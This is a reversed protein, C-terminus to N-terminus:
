DSKKHEKKARLAARAEELTFGRDIRTKIFAEDSAKVLSGIAAEDEPSRYDVRGTLGTEIDRRERDEIRQRRAEMAASMAEEKQREKEDPDIIGKSALRARAIDYTVGPKEAESDLREDYAKKARERRADESESKDVYDEIISEEIVDSNTPVEGYLEEDFPQVEGDVILANESIRETM